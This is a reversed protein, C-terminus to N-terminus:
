NKIVYIDELLETRIVDAIYSEIQYFQLAVVPDTKHKIKSYYHDLLDDFDHRIPLAEKMFMEADEPKLDGHINVYNWILDYRKKGIKKRKIEYDDYLKWFDNLEDADLEVFEAVYEKKEMGYLSQILAVEDQYTQAFGISTFLFFLILFTLNKM